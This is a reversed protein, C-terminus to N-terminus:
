NIDAVEALSPVLALYNNDTIIPANWPLDTKESVLGLAVCAFSRKLDSLNPNTIIDRLPHIADQDGILGLAKASASALGLTESAGMVDILIEVSTKDAMLGLATAIQLRVSPSINKDPLLTRLTEISEAYNILGLAVAAYGRFENNKSEKFDEFIMPAAERSGLLGFAIALAAKYSPNAETEYIVTLREILTPQIEPHSRAYIATAIAVWPEHGKFSPTTLERTLQTFFDYHSKAQAPTGEDHAFIRALSIISFHRTQIDKGTRVYDWLSNVVETDSPTALRGLAIACSQRTFHDSDSDEFTQMVPIIFEPWERGALKSLATPVYSKIVMDLKQDRLKSALYLMADSSRENDMLGLAVIGCVKIDRSSDPLGENVAIITAVGRPDNGLGLALAATSRVLWPVLSRGMLQRGHSTDTLLAQLTPTAEENGLIGLALTAATQVSLADHQLLPLAVELVPATAPGQASRGLAIISSNLIERSEETNIADILFPIVDAEVLAQTPRRSSEWFDSKRGRGTLFGISGSTSSTKILRKKLNLFSHKNYQWWFEWIDNSRTFEAPASSGSTASRGSQGRDKSAQGRVTVGRVSGSSTVGPGASDGMGPNTPPVVPPSLSGGSAVTPGFNPGSADAPPPPIPPPGTGGGAGAGGHYTLPTPSPEPFAWANLASASLLVVLLAGLLPPSGINTPVSRRSDPPM